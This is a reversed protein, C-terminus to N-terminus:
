KYKEEFEERSLDMYDLVAEVARARGIVIREICRKRSPWSLFRKEGAILDSWIMFKSDGVPNIEVFDKEDRYFGVGRWDVDPTEEVSAMLAPVDERAVPGLEEIGSEVFLKYARMVFSKVLIMPSAAHSDPM